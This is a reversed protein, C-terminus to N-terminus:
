LQGLFMSAPVKCACSAKEDKGTTKWFEESKAALLGSLFM